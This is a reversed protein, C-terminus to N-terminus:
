LSNGGLVTISAGHEEYKEAWEANTLPEASIVRVGRDVVADVEVARKKPYLFGALEAYMRGRLEPPNSEDLALRAMGEIPDCGM